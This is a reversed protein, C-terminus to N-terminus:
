KLYKNKNEIHGDFSSAYHIVGDNGHLYYLYKSDVPSLVALITEIGPNSLPDPPLGRYVYTNWPEDTKLDSLTLESSTKGLYVYFPADVQLAMGIEMRNFLIGAVVPREEGSNTESELISAMVLIDNIEDKTKGVFLDKTKEAYNEYLANIVADTSDTELLFYTDPFLMGNKDNALALFEEKKCNKLESACKEAIDNTTTGEPVVFKIKEVGYDSNIFRKAVSVVTLPNKFVYTGSSINADKGSLRITLYFFEKSRVINEEELLSSLSKISQGKKFEIETNSVFDKPAFGLISVALVVFVFLFVIFSAYKNTSGKPYSM